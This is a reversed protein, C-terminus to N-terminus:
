FPASLTIGATASVSGELEIAIQYNAPVNVHIILCDLALIVSRNRRERRKLTIHQTTLPNDKKIIKMKQALFQRM